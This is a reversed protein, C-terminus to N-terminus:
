KTKALYKSMKLVVKKLFLKLRNGEDPANSGLQAMLKKRKTYLDALEDENLSQLFEASNRPPPKKAPKERVWESQRQYGKPHKYTHTSKRPGEDRVKGTRTRKPSPPNCAEEPVEPEPEHEPEFDFDHDTTLELIKRNQM